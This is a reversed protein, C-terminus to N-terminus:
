SVMDANTLAKEIREVDALELTKGIDRGYQLNLRAARVIEKVVSWDKPTLEIHQM